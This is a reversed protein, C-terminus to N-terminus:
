HLAGEGHRSSIREDLVLGRAQRQLVGMRGQDLLELDRVEFPAHLASGAFIAPDFVLDITGTGPELWAASQGVAMPHLAGDDGTGYLDHAERQHDNVAAQVKLGIHLGDAAVDGAEVQARGDFRATPLSLGFATKGDRRATLEGVRSTASVHLEWMGQAAPDTRDIAVNAVLHDGARRLAVPETRGDPAVLLGTAHVAALPADGDRLAIEVSFPSGPQAASVTSRIALVVPSDPEVVAVVYRAGAAAQLDPARLTFRGAGLSPDIRFASSGDPFPMDARSLQEATALTQIAGSAAPAGDKQLDLRSPDIAVLDDTAATRVPNVRIVAGPTVTDIAVGHELESATVRLVYGHSLETHPAPAVDIKRDAPVAWSFHVPDHSPQVLQPLDATTVLRAPVLDGAAPHALTVPTAAFAATSLALAALFVLPIRKTQM